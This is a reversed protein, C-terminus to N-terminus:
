VSSNAGNAKGLEVIDLSPLADLNTKQSHWLLLPTPPTHPHVAAASLYAFSLFVINTFLVVSLKGKFLAHCKLCAFGVVVPRLSSSSSHTSSTSPPPHCFLVDFLFLLFLYSLFFVVHYCPLPFTSVSLFSRFSSSFFILFIFLFYYLSRM